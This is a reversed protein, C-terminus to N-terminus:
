WRGWPWSAELLFEGGIDARAVRERDRMAGARQMERQEREADPGAVLDDGRREGEGRGGFHHAVEARARDEDIDIGVGEVDVRRPDLFRELAALMALTRAIIGTCKAPCAQSM